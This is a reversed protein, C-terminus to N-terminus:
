ECYPVPKNENGEMNPNKKEKKSSNFSLIGRVSPPPPNCKKKGTSDSARGPTLHMRTCLKEKQGIKSTELNEKKRFTEKFCQNRKM